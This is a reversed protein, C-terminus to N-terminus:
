FAVAIVLAGVILVGGAFDLPSPSEKGLAKSFIQTLLPSLSTLIVTLAVGTTSISYVFLASGLVLDSLMFALIFGYNRPSLGSPWVRYRRTAIFAAGLAVAAAANRAFTVAVFNGGANTAAQLMEQGVTWFVAASTALAIGKARPKGDGGRSLSFIGALVMFAAILNSYPVVQGLAVSAVQVMLVYVYVVPAAVSAGTERISLLFLSDGCTLTIVGAVLALGLGAPNWFFLAPVGLVAAAASTRLLNFSLVDFKALFGRYYIPSFAWILSAVLAYAPTAM